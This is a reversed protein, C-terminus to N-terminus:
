NKVSYTKQIHKLYVATISKEKNIIATEYQKTWNLTQTLQNTMSCKGGRVIWM